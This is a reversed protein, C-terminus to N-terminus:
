PRGCQKLRAPRPRLAGRRTGFAHGPVVFHINDDGTAATCAQSCGNAGPIEAGSHQDDILIKVDAAPHQVAAGPHREASAIWNLM